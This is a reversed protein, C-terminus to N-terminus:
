AMQTAVRQIVYLEFPPDPEIEPNLAPAPNDAVKLPPEFKVREPNVKARHSVRDSPKPVDYANPAVIVIGDVM